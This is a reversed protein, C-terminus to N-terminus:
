DTDILELVKKELELIHKLREKSRLAEQKTEIHRHRMYPEVLETFLERIAYIDHKDAHIAVIPELYSWPDPKSDEIHGDPFQISYDGSAIDLACLALSGVVTRSLNFARSAELVFKQMPDPLCHIPFEPLGRRLEQIQKSPIRKKKKQM